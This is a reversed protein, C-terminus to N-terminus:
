ELRLFIVTFDLVLHHRAADPNQFQEAMWMTETQKWKFKQKERKENRQNM